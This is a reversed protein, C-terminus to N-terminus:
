WCDDRCRETSWFSPVGVRDLAMPLYYYRRGRPRQTELAPLHELQLFSDALITHGFPERGQYLRDAPIGVLDLLIPWSTPQVGSPVVMDIDSPKLHHRALLENICLRATPFYAALIEAQRASTDWYYGRSIQRLGLWRHRALRVVPRHRLRRRKHRQLPNRVAYGAPLVDVGVCLVHQLEPEALLVARGLRLASFMSPAAKSSGGRDGRRRGRSNMKCGAPPTVFFPFFAAMAARVYTATRWPVPGFLCIWRNPFSGPMRSHWHGAAERALWAADHDRDAVHVVRFGFDALDAPASTLLGQAALEPLTVRTTPLVGAIGRIGVTTKCDPTM